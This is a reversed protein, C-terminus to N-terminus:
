KHLKQAKEKEAEKIARQIGFNFALLLMIIVLLGIMIDM